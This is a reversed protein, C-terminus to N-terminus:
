GYIRSNLTEIEKNIRMIDEKELPIMSPGTTAKTLPDLDKEKETKLGSKLQDQLRKRVVKRRENVGGKSKIKQTM